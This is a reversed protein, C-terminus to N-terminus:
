INNIAKIVAPIDLEKVSQQLILTDADQVDPYGVYEYVAGDDRKNGSDAVQKWEQRTVNVSEIRKITIEFRPTM